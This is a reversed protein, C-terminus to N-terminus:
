ITERITTDQPEADDAVIYLLHFVIKQLEDVKDETNYPRIALVKHKLKKLKKERTDQPEADDAVTYLLHFVIKRLENVKDETNYLRIALVNHILKKLKKERTDYYNIYKIVPDDGSSNEAM